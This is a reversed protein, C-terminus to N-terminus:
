TPFVTTWNATNMTSLWARDLLVAVVENLWVPYMYLTSERERVCVCLLLENSHALVCIERERVCVCYYSM